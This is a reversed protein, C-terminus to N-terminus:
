FILLMEFDNYDYQQNRGQDLDKRLLMDILYSYLAICAHMCKTPALALAATLCVSVSNINSQQQRYYLLISNYQM